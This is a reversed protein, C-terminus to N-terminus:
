VMYCKCHQVSPQVVANAYLYHMKSVAQLSSFDPAYGPNPTSNCIEIYRWFLIKSYLPKQFAYLDILKRKHSIRKSEYKQYIVCIEFLRKCSIM